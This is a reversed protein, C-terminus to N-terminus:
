TLYPKIPIVVVFQAIIKVDVDVLGKFSFSLVVSFLKFLVGFLVIKKDSNGKERVFFYQKNALKHTCFFLKKRATELM